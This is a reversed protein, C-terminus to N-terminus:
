KKMKLHNDFSKGQLIIKKNFSSFEIFNMEFSNSFRLETNAVYNFIVTNSRYEEHLIVFKM